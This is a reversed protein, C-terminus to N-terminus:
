GVRVRARCVQNAWAVHNWKACVRVSDLTATTVGLSRDVKQLEGAQLRYANDAFHNRGITRHHSHWFKLRDTKAFTQRNDGNLLDSAVKFILVDLVNVVRHVSNTELGLRVHWGSM